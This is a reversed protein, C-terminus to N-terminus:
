GRHNWKLYHTSNQIAEFELGRIEEQTLKTQPLGDVFEFSDLQVQELPNNTRTEWWYIKVKRDRGGVTYVTITDRFRSIKAM